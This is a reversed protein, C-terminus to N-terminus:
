AAAHEGAVDLQLWCAPRGSTITSRSGATSPNAATGDVALDRAGPKGTLLRTLAPVRSPRGAHDDIRYVAERGNLHVGASPSRTAGHGPSVASGVQTVSM